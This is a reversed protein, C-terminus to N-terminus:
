GRRELLFKAMEDRVKSMRDQVEDLPLEDYGQRRLTPLLTGNLVDATDHKIRELLQAKALRSPGQRPRGVGRGGGKSKVAARSASRGSSKGKAM